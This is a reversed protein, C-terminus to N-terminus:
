KLENHFEPCSSSNLIKAIKIQGTVSDFVKYINSTGGDDLFKEILYRNDIIYGVVFIM